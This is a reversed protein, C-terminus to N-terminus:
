GRIPVQIPDALVATAPTPELAVALSWRGSIPVNVGYSAFHGPGVKTLPASIPDVPRGPLSLTAMARAVDLPAGDAGLTYLHVALSGVKAPDVVVDVLVSPGAHVEVSYPRALAARAPVANVLASTLAFVVAVVGLELIVATRLRSTQTRRLAQRSIVALGLLGAVAVTKALLLRGYPTATVAAWTGVQRWTAFLGSVVVAAAAPLAWSSFTVAVAKRREALGGRLLSVLVALGGIWVAAAGLHVVDFALALPVLRGVSAHGALAPGIVLVAAAALATPRWWRGARDIRALVVAGVVLAGLMIVAVEGFRTHLVEGVVSPKLADVLPLAGAYPGQVALGAVLAVGAGLLSAWLLKRAGPWGTAVVLATGGVAVALAAFAAFRAMGLLWGAAANGQHMAILRAAEARAAAGDAVRGGVRFTFAGHVPHSDASIVRWTVVYGGTGLAPATVAVADRAGRPHTARGTALRHGGADYVRVSGFTAEVAESFRLVLRSPGQALASGAAPDTSLLQAHASAAPAGLGLAAALALGVAVGLRPRLFRAVPRM